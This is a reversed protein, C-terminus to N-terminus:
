CISCAATPPGAGRARFWKTIILKHGAQVPMGAHLTDYNPLGDPLLNNWVVARGRCPQVVHDLKLFRTGGGREVDNLYIMFTWTRNGRFGGFQAFERTGPEFFDTHQKFEQGVDYRQGQTSESFPLRIGLTRAIKEDVSEVLADGLVGIDSTSSTRYFKDTPSQLTVESARMNHNILAALGDCEDGSLFDDLTYLQVRDSPFRRVNFTGRLRTLAPQALAAYDVGRIGVGLDALLPSQAPFHDGMSEEISTLSFHHKLLTALLDNPDCRRSINERLWGKWSEDLPREAAASPTDSSPVKNDCCKKFKLASGCPCPANRGPEVATGIPEASGRSMVHSFLGLRRLKRPASVGTRSLEQRAHGSRNEENMIVDAGNGRHAPQEGAVPVLHDEGGRCCVSQNRKAMVQGGQYDEGRGYFTLAALDDKLLQPLM